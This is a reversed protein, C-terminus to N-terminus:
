TYKKSLNILENVYGIAFNLSPSYLTPHACQNRTALNGQFIRLNAKNIFGVEKAVDLLQSEAASEKLETLDKFKWKSRKVRIDSEHSAYLSTLFLESFGSWVFM